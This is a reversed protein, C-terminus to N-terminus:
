RGRIPYVSCVSRTRRRCGSWWPRSWRPSVGPWSASCVSRRRRVRNRRHDATSPPDPPPTRRYRCSLSPLEAHGAM